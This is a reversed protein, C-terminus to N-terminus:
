IPFTGEVREGNGRANRNETMTEPPITEEDEKAIPDEYIKPQEGIPEEQDSGGLFLSPHSQSTTPTNPLFKGSNDRNRRPM